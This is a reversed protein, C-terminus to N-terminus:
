NKRKIRNKAMLCALSQAVQAAALATVDGADYVPNVEVVDAAILRIGDLLRLTQLIYNSSPGGPVPTGTGPAYAPDLADIDFTFYVPNDGVIEKIKEALQAPSIELLQNAYIIQYGPNPLDTRICVQVSRSPDICGEEVLDHAFNAHSFDGHSPITDQHSDFHILSVPGFLEATARIPGYPITHDGGISLLNAGASLIKKAEQYTEELMVEMARNGYFMGVDGYDIINPCATELHFDADNWLYNFGFVLNSVSRVARPGLRAGSRNTTGADFPIGMIAIDVGELERSHPFNGFSTLGAYYLHKATEQM